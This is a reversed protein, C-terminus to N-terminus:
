SNSWNHYEELVKTFIAFDFNFIASAFGNLDNPDDIEFNKESDPLAEFIKNIHEKSLYKERFDEFSKHPGDHKTSNITKNM